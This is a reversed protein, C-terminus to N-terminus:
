HGDRRLKSAPPSLMMSQRVADDSRRAVKCMRETRIRWYELSEMMVGERM